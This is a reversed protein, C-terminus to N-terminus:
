GGIGGHGLDPTADAGQGVVQEAQELLMPTSSRRWTFTESWRSRGVSLDFADVEAVALHDVAGITTDLRSGVAVKVWSRSRTVKGSAKMRRISAM